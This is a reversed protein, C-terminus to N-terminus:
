KQSEFLGPHAKLYAEASDPHTSRWQLVIKGLVRNRERLDTIVAASGLAAQPNVHAIGLAYAAVSPDIAPSAEYQNLWDASAGPDVQTLSTLVAPMLTLKLSEDSLSDTWAFADRARRSAWQNTLAALAHQQDQPSDLSQAWTIGPTPNDLQGAKTAARTLAAQRLSPAAISASWAFVQQPNTAFWQQTLIDLGHNLVPSPTVKELLAATRRPDAKALGSFLSAIFDPPDIGDLFPPSTSPDTQRGDLIASLLNLADDPNELAWNQFVLSTRATDHRLSEVRRVQALADIPNTELWSKFFLSLLRNEESKDANFQLSDLAALVDARTQLTALTERLNATRERDSHTTLSTQPATQIQAADPTQPTPANNQGWLFALWCTAAVLTLLTLSHKM